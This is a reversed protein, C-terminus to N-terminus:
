VTGFVCSNHGTRGCLLADVQQQLEHITTDDYPQHDCLDPDLTQHPNFNQIRLRQAGNLEQALRVIEHPRHYSPIVTCRFEHQIGNSIILRISEKIADLRTASQTIACYSQEDLPAKVDMAIYDILDAKILSRLVAPNTGNTDLKTALGLNRIEILLAPLSDHLTPEGGSICVGDIWGKNEALYTLIGHLDFTKLSDPELVLPANHCYRCRFNCHPLFIVSCIKGPWDIFSTELFGKIPVAMGKQQM